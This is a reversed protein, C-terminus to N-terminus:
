YDHITREALTEHDTQTRRIVDIYKLPIPSDQETPVYLETRQTKHHRVLADSTVTWFDEQQTPLDPPSQTAGPEQTGFVEDEQQEPNGRAQKKQKQRRQRMRVHRDTDGPQRLDGEALPFYFKGGDKIPHVEDAKFRKIHVLNVNNAKELEEWDVVLLDGSWGGGAQQEYGMFLGPLTKQSMQHLRAKDKQTNPQYEIEAGFPITPGRFDAGFRNHYATHNTVSIDVINRLFCYCEMALVWWDDHFGSQSLACSTGEKVRRVAREAIGNTEPRHPTSTDHSFGLDEFAKIFEKSNDTYIHGM